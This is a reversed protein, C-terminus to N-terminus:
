ENDEGIIVINGSGSDSFISVKEAGDILKRLMDLSKGEFSEYEESEIRWLERSAKMEGGIERNKRPSGNAM